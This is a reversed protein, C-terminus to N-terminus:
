FPTPCPFFSFVFWPLTQFGARCTGSFNRSERNGIGECAWSTTVVPDFFRLKLRDQGPVERNPIITGVTPADFPVAILQGFVLVASLKLEFIRNFNDRICFDEAAELPAGLGAVLMMLLVLGSLRRM